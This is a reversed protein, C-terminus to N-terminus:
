AIKTKDEIRKYQPNTLLFDIYEEARKLGDENLQKIKDNITSSNDYRPVDFGMLWMPSVGLAKAMLELPEPKPNNRGTSYYSIRSREIGTARVLDAQTFGKAAMAEKLRETFTAVKDM